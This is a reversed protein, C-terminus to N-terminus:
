RSITTTALAPRRRLVRVPRRLPYLVRVVAVVFALVGLNGFPFQVITNWISSSTLFLLQVASVAQMPVGLGSPLGQRAFRDLLAIILGTALSGVTVGLLGFDAYFNSLYSGNANGQVEAGPFIRRQVDGTFDVAPGPALKGINPITRGVLFQRLDHDVYAIYHYHVNAPVIAVREGVVGLLALNSTSSSNAQRSVALPFAVFLVAVGFVMGWRVRRRSGIWWTLTVVLLLRGVPSKEITLASTLLSAAMAGGFTLLSLLTRRRLHIVLFVAAVTPLLVDRTLGFAYGLAPIPLRTLAQERALALQTGSVGKLAELLPIVPTLALYLALVAGGALALAAAITQIGDGDTRSSRQRTSPEFEIAVRPSPAAAIAFSTLAFGLCVTALFMATSGDRQYRGFVSPTGILMTIEFGVVFIGGLQFRRLDFAHPRVAVLGAVFWATATIALYGFAEAWGIGTALADALGAAIPLLAVM